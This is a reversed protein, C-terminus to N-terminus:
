SRSDHNFLFALYKLYKDLRPRMIKMHAWIKLRFEQFELNSLNLYILSNASFIFINLLLCLFTFGFLIRTCKKFGKILDHQQPWINSINMTIKAWKVQQICSLELIQLNSRITFFRRLLQQESQFSLGLLCISVLEDLCFVICSPSWLVSILFLYIRKIVMTWFCISFHFGKPFLLFNIKM